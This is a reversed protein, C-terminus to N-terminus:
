PPTDGILLSGWGGDAMGMGVLKERKGKFKTSPPKKLHGMVTKENATMNIKMDRWLPSIFYEVWCKNLVKSLVLSLM